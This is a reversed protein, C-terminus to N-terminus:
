VVAKFFQKWVFVLMHNHVTARNMMALFRLDPHREVSSDMILLSCYMWTFPALFAELRCSPHVYPSSPGHVCDQIFGCTDVSHGWPDPSYPCRSSGLCFPAVLVRGLHSLPFLMSRVGEVVRSQRQTPYSITVMYVNWEERLAWFRFASFWRKLEIRSECTVRPLDQEGQLGRSPPPSSLWNHKLSLGPNLKFKVSGLGRVGSGSGLGM